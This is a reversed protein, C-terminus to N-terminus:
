RQGYKIIMADIEGQALTQEDNRCLGNAQVSMTQNGHDQETVHDLGVTHGWEHTMISSIVWANSCGDLTTEDWAVNRNLAWESEVVNPGSNNLNRLVCAVGLKASSGTAAMSRWAAVNVTDANAFACNTGDSNIITAGRPTGGNYVHSSQPVRPDNCDDNALVMNDAGKKIGNAIQVNTLNTVANSNNYYWGMQSVIKYGAGRFFTDSCAAPGGPAGTPLGTLNDPTTITYESDDASTAVAITQDSGDIMYAEALGELGPLPVEVSVEDSFAVIRGTLDCDTKKVKKPMKKADLKKDNTCWTPKADKDEVAAAAVAFTGGFRRTGRGRGCGTSHGAERGEQAGGHRRRKQSGDPRVAVDLWLDGWRLLVKTLNPVFARRGGQRAHSEVVLSAPCMPSKSPLALSPPIPEGCGQAPQGGVQNALGLVARLAARLDPPQGYAARSTVSSAM